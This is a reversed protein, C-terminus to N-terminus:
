LTVESPKKYNGKEDFLSDFWAEVDVGIDKLKQREPYLDDLEYYERMRLHEEFMDKYFQKLRKPGFGYRSHLTWLVMTDVDLTFQKDLKLLQQNVEHNMAEKGPGSTMVKAMQSPKLMLTPESKPIKGARELRRREKRNM